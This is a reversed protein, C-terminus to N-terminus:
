IVNLIFVAWPGGNAAVMGKERIVLLGVRHSVNGIQDPVGILYPLEQGM